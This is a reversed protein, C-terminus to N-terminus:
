EFSEPNGMASNVLSLLNAVLLMIFLSLLIAVGCFLMAGNVTEM